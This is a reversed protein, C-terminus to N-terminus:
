SMICDIHSLNQGYVFKSCVCSFKPRQVSVHSYWTIIQLTIYGIYDRIKSQAVIKLDMCDNHSLNQEYVFKSCVCSFLMSHNSIKAGTQEPIKSLTEISVVSKKHRPVVTNSFVKQSTSYCFFFIKEAKM